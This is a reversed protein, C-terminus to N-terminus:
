HQTQQESGGHGGRLARRNTARDGIFRAAHQRAHGDFRAAGGHDLLNSGRYGIAVALVQDDGELGARIGHRVAQRSEARQDTLPDLQADAERCADVDLERHAVDLLGYGDGPVTRHDIDLVDLLPLHHVTLDDVADRGSLREEVIRQRTGPISDESDNRM